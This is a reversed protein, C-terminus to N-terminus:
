PRTQSSRSTLVAGKAKLREMAKAADTSHPGGPERVIYEYYHTLAENVKGEGETSQGLLYHIRPNEPEAKLADNLRSTAAAYKKDRLYAGAIELSHEPSDSGNLRRVDAHVRVREIGKKAVAALEGKPMVKLYNRYHLFASEAEGNREYAQALKLTADADNPKYELAERYRSIAAKYNKQKAYYDGIEVAKMAKHPNWPKTERIGTREAEADEDLDSGPHSADGSPPTLDILTDKSSSEGSSRPSPESRPPAQLAMALM